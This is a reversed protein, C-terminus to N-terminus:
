DLVNSSTWDCPAVPSFNPILYYSHVIDKILIVLRLQNGDNTYALSVTYLGHDPHKTNLPSFLKVYTLHQPWKETTISLFLHSMGQEPIKFVVQVHVVMFGLFEILM